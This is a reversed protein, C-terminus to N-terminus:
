IKFEGGSYIVISEGNRLHATVERETTAIIDTHEVSQNFGLRQWEEESVKTQDGAFADRYARGVALHMNGYEGGFNEDYLTTAMFRNIRSFRRDTLSFEGIRDANPQAILAHLLSENEEATAKLIKGEEFTLEIGRIVNGYRYLPQDFRVTGSTGHWDPSTFIEFSPINHGSAGLWKRQEGLTVFLDTGEATVHLRAIPLRSLEAVIRKIEAFVETFAAVPDPEDLFCARRIQKWYEAASLGAEAAMGATGYLCLTWCYRGHQEKEDFWDRLQKGSQNALILRRPDVDALFRPDWEALLHIAHDITDVLGRYYATPAFKLQEESAAKLHILRFDDDRLNLIPHGGRELIRAYVAKALPLAPQQAALYVVEGPKVGAGDRLAFDVLVRAYKELTETKPTYLRAM